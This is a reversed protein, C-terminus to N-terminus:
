LRGMTAPGRSENLTPKKSSKCREFISAFAESLDAIEGTHQGALATNDSTLCVEYYTLRPAVSTATLNDPFFTHLTDRM